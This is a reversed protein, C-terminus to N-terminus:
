LLSYLGDTMCGSLDIVARLKGTPELDVKLCFCVFHQESYQSCDVSLVFLLFNSSSQEVFCVQIITYPPINSCLECDIFNM